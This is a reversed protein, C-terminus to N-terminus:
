LVLIHESGSKCLASSRRRPMQVRRELSQKGYCSLKFQSILEIKSVKDANVTCYLM